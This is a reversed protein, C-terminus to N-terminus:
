VEEVWASGNWLCDHDDCHALPHWGDQDQREKTVCGCAHLALTAYDVTAILRTVESLNWELATARSENDTM